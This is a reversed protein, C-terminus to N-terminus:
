QGVLACLMTHGTHRTHQLVCAVCTISHLWLVSLTQVVEMYGCQVSHTIKALYQSHSGSSPKITFRFM